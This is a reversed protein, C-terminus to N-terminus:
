FRVCSLMSGEASFTPSSILSSGPIAPPSGIPRAGRGAIQAQVLSLTVSDRSKSDVHTQIMQKFLVHLTSIQDTTDVNIKHIVLYM